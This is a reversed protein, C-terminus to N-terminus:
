EFRLTFTKSRHNVDFIWLINSEVNMVRQKFRLADSVWHGIRANKYDDFWEHEKLLPIYLIDDSFKVSSIKIVGLNYDSSLDWEDDDDDSESPSPQYYM